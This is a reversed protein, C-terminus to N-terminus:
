TVIESPHRSLAGVLAYASRAEPTWFAGVYVRFGAPATVVRM